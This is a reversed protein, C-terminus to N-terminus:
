SPAKPRSQSRRSQSRSHARLAAEVEDHIDLQRSKYVAGPSHDCLAKAIEDGSMSQVAGAAIMESEVTKWNVPKGAAAAQDVAALALDGFLRVASEKAVSLLPLNRLRSERESAQLASKLRELKRRDPIDEERTTQKSALMGEVDLGSIPVEGLHFRQLHGRLQEFKKDAAVYLLDIAIEGELATSHGKDMFEPRLAQMAAASGPVSKLAQLLKRNNEANVPLLLDIDKTMRPFGHLAMAAGGIVAYEVGYESLAAALSALDATTPERREIPKSM